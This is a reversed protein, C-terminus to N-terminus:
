PQKQLALSVFGQTGTAAVINTVEAQGTIQLPTITILGNVDSIASSVQADAIPAIPCQGRDPCPMQWSEITQHIQVVAGAIPHSATDVVRLTLPLLTDAAGVSQGAGSVIEIRWDAPDVAQTAFTTCVTTWTCVSATAKAGAALPGATALTQAIGQANAPSQTPSLLVPGSVTHWNVIVGATSASNDALSVQPKWLVVTNPAIYQVPTLPDITRIRDLATFSATQTGYASAASVTITGADLPTVTTSVSGSANTTLNCTSAACAGFRVAGGISTFTVPQNAM